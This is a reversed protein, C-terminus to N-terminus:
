RKWNQPKHKCVSHFPSDEGRKPLFMVCSKYKFRAWIWIVLTQDFESISSVCQDFIWNWPFLIMELQRQMQLFWTSFDWKKIYIKQVTQTFHINTQIVFARAIWVIFYWTNFAESFKTLLPSCATFFSSRISQLRWRAYEVNGEIEVIELMEFNDLFLFINGM